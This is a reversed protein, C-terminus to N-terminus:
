PNWKVPFVSICFLYSCPHNFWNTDPTVVMQRMCRPMKAYLQDAPQNHGTSHQGVGRWYSHSTAPYQCSCATACTSGSRGLCAWHTVHRTFICTMSSSPCKWSGHSTPGHMIM